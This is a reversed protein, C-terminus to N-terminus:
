AHKFLTQFIEIQFVANQIGAIQLQTGKMINTDLSIISLKCIIDVAYFKYNM